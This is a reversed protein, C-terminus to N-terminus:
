YDGTVCKVFIWGTPVACIFAFLHISPCIALTFTSPVKTFVCIHRHNYFLHLQRGCIGHICVPTLPVAGNM